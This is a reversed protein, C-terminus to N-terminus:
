TETGRAQTHPEERYGRAVLLERLKKKIRVLRVSVNGRSLGTIESIEDYDHQELHLVIIARDVDPLEHICQNLLEVDARTADDDEVAVDPTQGSPAISDRRRADKRSKMLATNLAVRYLWTSFKSHGKFSGFSRWAQLLMEQRLDERDERGSGYTECIRHLIRQHRHILDIFNRYHDNRPSM